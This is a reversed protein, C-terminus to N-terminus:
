DQSAARPLHRHIEELVATTRILVDDDWFRLVRYGAAALRRSRRADYATQELHQGGDLEVVLQADICIFDVIYGCLPHQRRFKWGSLQRRRLFRWLHREADTTRHRLERARQRILDM